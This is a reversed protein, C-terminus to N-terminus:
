SSCNTRARRHLPVSELAIQMATRYIILKHWGHIALWSGVGGEKSLRKIFMKYGRMAAEFSERRMKGKRTGTHSLMDDSQFKGSRAM